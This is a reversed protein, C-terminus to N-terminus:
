GVLARELGDSGLVSVVERLPRLNAELAQVAADADHVDLARVLAVHQDHVVQPRRPQIKLSALSVRQQRLSLKGYIEILV